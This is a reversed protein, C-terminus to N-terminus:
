VASLLGHRDLVTRVEDAEESSAEVLPLRFGGVEHGLMQMATKVPIPNVTVSMAAWVDQLTADIEHRQDPEDLMRRMEPGVVHSAVCIGGPGGMDLVEALKEDNGALLDMGDIPKIDDFRAQKVAAINEVQALEALLDNPLDVVCRSPINYVVIPLSPTANAVATFHAVCGRRNPKVYYPTVVLAGDVGLEAAKGTLEITHATDNSGTGAIVTADGAEAVALEFLRLKEADSLTAGEGTSGAVVVGDSGNDLLHRLLAVFADENVRGADDFPTLIATLIGGFTV